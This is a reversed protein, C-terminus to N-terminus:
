QTPKVTSGKIRMEKVVGQLQQLDDSDCHGLIEHWTQMDLAVKCKDVNKVVTPLYFLQLEARQQKGADDLLYVVVTGTQQADGEDKTGNELELHAQLSGDFSKFKIDNVIHWSAGTDVVIRDLKM